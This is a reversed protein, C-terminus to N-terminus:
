APVLTLCLIEPVSFFRFPMLGGIGRNVYLWKNHTYLMGRKLHPNEMVLFKKGIFPLNVQGGHTHGSFIVSGPCDALLPTSDPNHAMIIGPFRDDWLRFAAAPDCRGLSYEGLGVINLASGNIPVTSCTNHLVRFPTKALLDMLPNHLGVDRVNRNMSKPFLSRKFLKKFGKWLPSCNSNVVSYEGNDSVSVFQNYDHNGLVAFAGYRGKPFSCLFDYLRQSIEQTLKSQCLFDGTFLVLDPAFREAKWKIKKIYRDSLHENLHLDSFQLIRLGDLGVPLDKIKLTVYSTTLLKPECFRPWIGVVSAICAFDLLPNSPFQHNM